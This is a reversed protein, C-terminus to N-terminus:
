EKNFMGLAKMALYVKVGEEFQRIDMGTKEVFKELRYQLSNRHIFLKKATETVNMNEKLFMDISHLLEADDKVPGITKDMFDQLEKKDLKHLLQIYILDKWEIIAKKYGYDLGLQFNTLEIKMKERVNSPMTFPEGVYFSVNIMCESTITDVLDELKSYLTDKFLHYDPLIWVFKRNEILVFFSKEELFNEVIAKLSLTIEHDLDAEPHISLYVQGFQSNPLYRAKTIWEEKWLSLDEEIIMRWEHEESGEELPVVQSQVDAMVTILSLAEKELPVLISLWGITEVGEKIPFWKISECSHPKMKSASINDEGYIKELQQYFWSKKLRM